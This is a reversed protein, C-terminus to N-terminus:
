VRRGGSTTLLAQRQAPRPGIQSGPTCWLCARTVTPSKKEDLLSILAEGPWSPSPPKLTWGPKQSTQATAKVAKTERPSPARSLVPGTTLWCRTLFTWRTQTQYVGVGKSGLRVVLEIREVLVKPAENFLLHAEDFFVPNEPDGIEPPQEFLESLMWLLFTAYLRPSNM